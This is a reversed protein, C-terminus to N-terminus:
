NIQASSFMAKNEEDPWKVSFANTYRADVKVPYGQLIKSVKSYNDVFLKLRRVLLDPSTMRGLEIDVTPYGDSVLRVSWSGRFSILIESVRMGLPAVTAQLKPLETVAMVTQNSECAILPMNKALELEDAQGVYVIGESSILQGEDQDRAVPRYRTIEVNIENPFVRTITASRVWSIAEVASKIKGIDQSVLNGEIADNVVSRVDEICREDEAGSFTISKIDFFESHTLWLYGYGLTLLLITAAIHLGYHKRTAM